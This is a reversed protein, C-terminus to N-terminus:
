THTRYSVVCDFLLHTHKNSKYVNTVPNSPTNTYQQRHYCCLIIIHLIIKNYQEQRNNQQTM